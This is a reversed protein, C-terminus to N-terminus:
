DCTITQTCTLSAGCYDFATWTRTVVERRVRVHVWNLTVPAGGVASTDGAVYFDRRQTTPDTCVCHGDSAVMADSGAAGAVLVQEVRMGHAPDNALRTTSRLSPQSSASATAYALLVTGNGDMNISPAFRTLPDGAATAGQQHLRWLPAAHLAPALWRLEFWYVRRAASLALVVSQSPEPTTRYHARSSLQGSRIAIPTSSPTAVSTGSTADFDQVSIKYRIANFAVDTININYWHEIELYDITPTNAGVHLEDDVARVFLAGSTGTGASRTAAPLTSSEVHIPMWSQRRAGYGALSGAFPAPECFLGPVDHVVTVNTYTTSNDTANFTAVVTDTSQATYALLATRNAVCLAGTDLTLAYVDAWVALQPRGFQADIATPMTYAFARWTTTMPDAADSVYLCVDRSGAAGLELVVWLQAEYDWVVQAQGRPAVSCNSPSDGIAGLVFGHQELLTERDLVAVRTSNDPGDNFVLLAHTTGVAANLFSEPATGARAYREVVWSNSANYTPSRKRANDGPPTPLAVGLSVGTARVGRERGSTDIAREHQQQAHRQRRRRDVQQSADEYVVIPGPMTCGGSATASGGTHTPSLSTGLVVTVDAPCAITLMAPGTTTSPAPTTTTAPTTAAPTTTSTVTPTDTEYVYPERLPTPTLRENRVAPSQAVFTFTIAILALTFVSFVIWAAM